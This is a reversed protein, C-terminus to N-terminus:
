ADLISEGVVAALGRRLLQSAAQPTVDMEEALETLTVERPVEFYGRGHALRLMERQKETPGSREGSILESRQLRRFEVPVGREECATRFAVLEERDNTLLEFEWGEPTGEVGALVFDREDLMRLLDSRDLRLEYLARGESVDYRTVDDVRERNGLGSEVLGHDAANVGLHVVVGDGERVSRRLKARYDGVDDLVRGLVFAEAPVAVSAIWTM